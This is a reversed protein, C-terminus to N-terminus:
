PKAFLIHYFSLNLVDFETKTDNPIGFSQISGNINCHLHSWGIQRYQNGTLTPYTLFVKGLNNMLETAPLMSM